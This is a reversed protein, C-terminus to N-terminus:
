LEIAERYHPVYTAYGLDATIEAALKLAVDEEGHTLFVRKPPQKFARIWHMLGDHDAHGSFGYLQAINARVQFFQGHIRVRPQRDVIQRGLTGVSQHGVFLITAEPKEINNKLHHKIRGANCMGSSSMIVVPPKAQNILKSDDATRVYQMSEFVFPAQQDKVMKLLAEDCYSEFKLYVKTVDVAMPSDLYVPLPPIRGSRILRGFHYVLEQAREVAFTPIIVNGGRRAAANVVEALQTETDIDRQHNRDGYTSEMVVYDAHELYSPDRIIPKDHQGIDGSFVIRTHRGNEEADVQIMASGLIHGADFFRATVHPTVKVAQGYKVPQFLPLSQEVHQVTYLPEYPFPSKRRERQHRKLKYAVDEEQIEAADRLMIDVLGVSPETAYIPATFGEKVLKPILGCHDAHVHTLLMADIDPVPLPIPDWNRPMFPREQFMGCDILVERGAVELSYRSGTVQRNAGLFHLKM